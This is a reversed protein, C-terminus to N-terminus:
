EVGHGATRDEGRFAPFVIDDAIFMERFFGDIGKLLAQFIFFLTSNRDDPDMIIVQHQGGIVNALHSLFPVQLELQREEQVDRKWRPIDESQQGPRIFYQLTDQSTVHDTEVNLIVAQIEDVTTLPIKSTAHVALIKQNLM